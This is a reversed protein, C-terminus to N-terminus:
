INRGVMDLLAVLDVPKKLIDVSGLEAARPAAGATLVVVPVDSIAPTRLQEARFAYGDMGAMMLDLVILSPTPAERLRALADAGDKATMVDYGEDRLVTVLADCVGPDDEIIFVTKRRSAGGESLRRGMAGLPRLPAASPDGQKAGSAEGPACPVNVGDGGRLGSWGM